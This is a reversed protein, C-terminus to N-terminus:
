YNEAVFYRLNILGFKFSFIFIREEQWLDLFLIMAWSHVKRGPFGKLSSDPTQHDNRVAFLTLVVHALAAQRAATDDIILFPCFLQFAPGPLVM